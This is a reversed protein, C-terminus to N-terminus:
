LTVGAAPKKPCAWAALLMRGILEDAPKNRVAPNAILYAAAMDAVQSLTVSQPACHLTGQYADFAGAVYAQALHRDSETGSMRTLLDNGTLFYANASTSIVVALIAITTKM